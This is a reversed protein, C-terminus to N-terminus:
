FDSINLIEQPIYVEEELIKKMQTVQSQPFYSFFRNEINRNQEEKTEPLRSVKSSKELMAQYAKCFPIIEYQRHFIRSLNEYIGIGEYDLDGFYLITNDPSKMYPEMCLSFDQFSRLIAKGGGYILTGIKLGLITEKGDLLHARMSYFTDKNELILINQPVERTHAYYPLPETTEYVNLDKEELGCRKLIKKGHEKTLFKERNWIEFSRENVSEQHRLHSSSNKLYENLMLVWIRDKEYIKLHALYYDVSIRPIIQYKLEEELDEYDEKKEVLWYEKYLAPKKGNIGSSKVPKLEGSDLRRKIDLYQQEYEISECSLLLVELSIRKM